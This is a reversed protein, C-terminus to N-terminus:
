GSLKEVTTTVLGNGGAGSADVEKHIRSLRAGDLEVRPSKSAISECSTEARWRRSAGVSLETGTAFRVSMASLPAVSLRSSHLAEHLAPGLARCSGPGPPQVLACLGGADNLSVRAPSALNFSAGGEEGMARRSIKRRSRPAPRLRNQRLMHRHGSWRPRLWQLLAFSSPHLSVLRMLCRWAVPCTSAPPTLRVEHSQRPIEGLPELSAAADETRGSDM